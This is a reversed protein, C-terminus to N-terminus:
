AIDKVFQPILDLQIRQDARGFVSREFPEMSQQNTNILYNFQDKPAQPCDVPQSSALIQSGSIARGFYIWANRLFDNERHLFHTELTEHEIDGLRWVDIKLLHVSIVHFQWVEIIDFYM